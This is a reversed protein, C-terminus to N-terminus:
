LCLQITGFGATLVDFEAEALSPTYYGNDALLKQTARRDTESASNFVEELAASNSIKTKGRVYAILYDEPDYPKLTYCANMSDTKVCTGDIPVLPGNSLDGYRDMTEDYFGVYNAAAMTADMSIWFLRAPVSSFGWKTKVTQLYMEMDRVVVNCKGNILTVGRVVVNCDANQAWSLNPCTAFLVFALVVGQSRQLKQPYKL